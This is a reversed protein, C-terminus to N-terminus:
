AASVKIAPVPIYSVSFVNKETPSQILTEEVISYYEHSFSDIKYSLLLLNADDETLGSLEITTKGTVLNMKQICFVM